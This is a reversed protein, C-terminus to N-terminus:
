RRITRTIRAAMRTTMTAMLIIRLQDCQDLFNPNSIMAFHCRSLMHPFMYFGFRYNFCPHIMDIWGM